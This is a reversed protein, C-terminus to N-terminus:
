CNTSQVDTVPLRSELLFRFVTIIEMQVQTGVQAHSTPLSYARDGKTVICQGAARDKALRHEGMSLALIM